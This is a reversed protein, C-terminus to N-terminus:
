FTYGKTRYNYLDCLTDINNDVVKLINQQMDTLYIKKIDVFIKLKDSLQRNFINSKIFDDVNALASSDHRRLDVESNDITNSLMYDNSYFIKISFRFYYIHTRTKFNKTNM